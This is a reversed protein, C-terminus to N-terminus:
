DRLGEVFRRMEDKARQFQDMSRPVNYCHEATIPPYYYGIREDPEAYPVQWKPDLLYSPWAFVNWWERRTTRLLRASPANCDLRYLEFYTVVSDFDRGKSQSEGDAWNSDSSRFKVDPNSLLLWGVACLV